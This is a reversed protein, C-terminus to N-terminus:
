LLLKATQTRPDYMCTYKTRLMAGFSNQSDVWSRYMLICGGPSTMESEDTLDAHKASRPAKLNDEVTRRCLKAVEVPDPVTLEVTPEVKCAQRLNHEELRKPSMKCAGVRKGHEDVITTHDLRKAECEAETQPADQYFVDAECKWYRPKGQVESAVMEVPMRNREKCIPLMSARTFQEEKYGAALLAPRAAIAKAASDRKKLETELADLEKAGLSKCVARAAEVASRFADLDGAVRAHADQVAAACNEEQGLAKSRVFILFGVIVVIGGAIVVLRHKKYLATLKKGISAMKEEVAQM